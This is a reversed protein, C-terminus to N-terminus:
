PKTLVFINYMNLLYIERLLITNRFIIDNLRDDKIMTFQSKVHLDRNSCYM